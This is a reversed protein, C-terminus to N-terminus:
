KIREDKMRVRKIHIAMYMIEEGSIEGGSEKQIYEAIKLSCSYEEPYKGKMLKAFEVEEDKLLEKRYVRQSLFKLHTIFREYHLSEEDMEIELEKKVIEIIGQIMKTIAFTDSIQTSYEANVIHLAIFGAEEDTFQIGLRQHILNVAHQGLLFEQRYFQKIEWLLANTLFIGQNFREIAFNIHDTLTVYISQNLNLNLNEKAYAIIDISLKMHELPMNALVEQFQKALTQNDIRFVKEIKREDLVDGAQAKFGIGRGMIVVEQGNGDEASVVNNNIVKQIKVRKELEIKTTFFFWIEGCLHLLIQNQRSVLLLGILNDKNLSM